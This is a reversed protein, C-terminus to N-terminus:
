KQRIRWVKGVVQNQRSIRDNEEGSNANGANASHKLLRKFDPTTASNRAFARMVALEGQVAAKSSLL